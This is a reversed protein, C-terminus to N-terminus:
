THHEQLYDLVSDDDMAEQRAKNQGNRIIEALTQALTTDTMPKHRSLTNVKCYEMALGMIALGTSSMDTMKTPNHDIAQALEGLFRYIKTQEETM